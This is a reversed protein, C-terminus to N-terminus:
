SPPAPRRPGDAWADPRSRAGSRRRSRPRTELHYELFRLTFSRVEDTVRPDIRIRPLNSTPSEMLSQAIRLIGIAQAELSRGHAEAERACAPCLRGGAARSFPVTGGSPGRHGGGPDRGCSACRVLAPALGMGALFRLDFAAVALDAVAADADIVGLTAQTLEFLAVDAEEERAGLGALELVALGARYAALDGTLGRRRVKVAGRTLIGVESRGQKRWGLDLTDFLDLVGCYGSRLRYAGKALLSLRGHSRTLVHVVLSSEGYPFRRLVLADDALPISDRRAGRPRYATGSM